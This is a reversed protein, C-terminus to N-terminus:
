SIMLQPNAHGKRGQLDPTVLMRGDHGAYAECLPGEKLGVLDWCGGAVAVDEGHPLDQMVPAVFVADADQFLYPRM